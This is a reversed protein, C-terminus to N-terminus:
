VIVGFYNCLLVPLLLIRGEVVNALASVDRVRTGESDQLELVCLGFSDPPDHLAGEWIASLVESLSTVEKVVESDVGLLLGEFATIVPTIPLKRLASVELLM